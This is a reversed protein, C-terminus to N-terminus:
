IYKAILTEIGKGNLFDKRYKFIEKDKLDLLQEEQLQNIKIMERISINGDLIFGVVILLLCIEREPKPALKLSAIYDGRLLHIEEPEIKYINFLNKTLICHNQHFDRKSVAIYQLTDYLLAKFGPTAEQDTKIRTCVMEILNQGMIVVRAQKLVAWTGWANWAAFIPVGAMDQVAKVAYRGLLRQIIFKFLMNSLTAKLTLLFNWLILGRKNLGQLPDIGYKLLSKDKKELGVNLMLKRLEQDKKNEHTLFGTAVAISHICYINLFTLLLIEIYVLVVGYLLGVIPVPFLKGFLTVPTVPFWKPAVYQPVYLLVVGMAGFFAAAWVAFREKQKIAKIEHDNLLFLHQDPNIKKIPLVRYFWNYAFQM